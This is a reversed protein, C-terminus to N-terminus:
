ENMPDSRGSKVSLYLHSYFVTEGIVNNKNRYLGYSESDSLVLILIFKRSHRKEFINGTIFKRSRRFNQYFERIKVGNKTIKSRYKSLFKSLEIKWTCVKVLPVSCAIDLTYVGLFNACPTPPVPHLFPSIKLFMKHRYFFM